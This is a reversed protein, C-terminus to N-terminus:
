SIRANFLLMAEDMNRAYSGNFIDGDRLNLTHVVYPTLNSVSDHLIAMFGDTTPKAAYCQTTQMKDDVVVLCKQIAM